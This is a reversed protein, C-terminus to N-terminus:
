GDANQRRKLFRVARQELNKDARDILHHLLLAEATLAWDAELEGIWHGDPAQLSLLHQQSRSIAEHLPTVLAFPLM